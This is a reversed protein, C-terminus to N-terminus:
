ESQYVEFVRRVVTDWDPVTHADPDPGGAAAEVATSITRPDIDAVGITGTLELWDVLAGAKRVVVPTGAAISEAVTMGYSEFKSLQLYVDAGTFLRPLDDDEVYGLFTVRDAVGVDAAVAELASRYPGSGAVVLERDVLYPLSRIAYQVGKYQELRGVCLVYSKKREVPEASLFRNRQIGNPVVTSDVGFDCV